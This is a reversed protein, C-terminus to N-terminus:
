SEQDFSVESGEEMESKMEVSVHSEEKVASELDNEEEIVSMELPKVVKTKKPRSKGDRDTYHTRDRSPGGKVITSFM